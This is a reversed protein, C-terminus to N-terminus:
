RDPMPDSLHALLLDANPLTQAISELSMFDNEDAQHFASDHSQEML